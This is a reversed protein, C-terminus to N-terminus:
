LGLDVDDGCSSGCGGGRLRDSQESYDKQFGPGDEPFSMYLEKISAGHCEPCIANNSDDYTGSIDFEHGCTLCRERFTPYTQAGPLDVRVAM